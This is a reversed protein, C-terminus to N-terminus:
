HRSALLRTCIKDVGPSKWKQSKTIAIQLKKLTLDEWEQESVDENAKEADSIWEADM